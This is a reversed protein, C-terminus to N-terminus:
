PQQRIVFGATAKLEFKFATHTSDLELPMFSQMLFHHNELKLATGPRSGTLGGTVQDLLKYGSAAQESTVQFEDIVIVAIELERAAANHPFEGGGCAVVAAPFMTLDPLLEFLNEYGSIVVTRIEKFLPQEDCVMAALRAAILALSDNILPYEM